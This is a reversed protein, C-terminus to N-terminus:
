PRIEVETGTATHAFLEAIEPNTVAICGDTWDGKVKYGEAIQNPQGHIMIDGGPDVGQAAARKRDQPRPYSLGLSLHFRSQANRRDIRFVGEPTKKDGQRVKDGVPASGLAIQMVRPNGDKQFVTMRRAGKEILIRQVESTIQPAPRPLGIRPPRPLPVPVTQPPVPVPLTPATPVPLRVTPGWSTWAIWGAALFCLLAILKM